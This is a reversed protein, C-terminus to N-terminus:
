RKPPIIVGVKPPDVNILTVGPPMSVDVKRRLDKGSEIDTLDVVARIQNAQLVAMVESSGTVTVSVVSPAVRFDRVDAATAVVLVPLNGYTVTNGAVPLAPTGPEEYIQHVTLWIVLALFLSFLKWGPDKTLWDHM